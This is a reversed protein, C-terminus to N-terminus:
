STTGSVPNTLDTFQVNLPFCGTTASTTFDVAPKGNVVIYNTKIIEDEGTANQITLKVTYLGPNFYTVSPNQLYSITGNGLDWKWFTPNGTSQDIFQIVMPTCGSTSSASFAADLQANVNTKSLVLIICVLSSKVLTKISM